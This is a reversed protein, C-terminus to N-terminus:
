SALKLLLTKALWSTGTCEFMPAAAAFTSILTPKNLLFSVTTAAICTWVPPVARGLGLGVRGPGNSGPVTLGPWKVTGHQAARRAWVEERARCPTLGVTGPRGSYCPGNLPGHWGSGARWRRGAATIPPGEGPPSPPARPHHGHAACRDPTGARCWPCITPTGGRGQATRGLSSPFTIRAQWVRAVPPRGLGRRRAVPPVRLRLGHRGAAAALARRRRRRAAHDGHAAGAAPAVLAGRRAAGGSGGGVHGQGGQRRIWSVM